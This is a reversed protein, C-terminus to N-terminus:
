SGRPYQGAGEGPSGPYVRPHCRHHHTCSSPSGGGLGAGEM